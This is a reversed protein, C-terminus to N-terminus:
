NAPERNLVDQLLKLAKGYYSPDGTERIKQLYGASLQIAADSDAPNKTLRAQLSAITADTTLESGPVAAAPSKSTHSRLVTGAAFAGILVVVIILATVAARGSPRRPRAPSLSTTIQSMKAGGDTMRRNVM